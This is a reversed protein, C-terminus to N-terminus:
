PVTPASTVTTTADDDGAAPQTAAAALVRNLRPVVRLRFEADLEDRSRPSRRVERALANLTSALERIAPALAPLAPGPDYTWRDNIWALEASELPVHDAVQFRVSATRGDDDSAIIKVQPAFLGMADAWPSLDWEPLLAEDITAGLSAQLATNAATFQDMAMLTDLFAARGAPAVFTALRDYDREAHLKRMLNITPEVDVPPPAVAGRPAGTASQPRSPSPSERCGVSACAILAACGGPALRRWAARQLM